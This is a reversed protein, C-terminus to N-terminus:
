RPFGYRELKHPCGKSTTDKIYHLTMDRTIKEIDEVQASSWRFLWATRKVSAPAGGMPMAQDSGKLPVRTVGPRSDFSPTPLSRNQPTSSSPSKM